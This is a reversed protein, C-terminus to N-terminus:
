KDLADQLPKNNGLDDKQEPRIKKVKENRILDGTIEGGLKIQM